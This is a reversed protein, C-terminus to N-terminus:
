ASVSEILERWTNGFVDRWKVGGSLTLVGCRPKVNDLVEAEELEETKRLVETQVYSIDADYRGFRVQQAPNQPNRAYLVSGDWYFNDDGVIRITQTIIDGTTIVGADLGATSIHNSTIANAAIQDGTLKGELDQLNDRTIKLWTSGNWQRWVPPSQSTDLWLDNIQPGGPPTSGRTIKREAYERVFAEDAKSNWTPASKIAEDPLGDPSINYMDIGGTLLRKLIQFNYNLDELLSDRRVKRLPILGM